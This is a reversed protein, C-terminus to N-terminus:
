VHKQRYWIHLVILVLDSHEGAGAWCHLIVQRSPPSVTYGVHPDIFHCMTISDSTGRCGAGLSLYVWSTVSHKGEARWWSVCRKCGHCWQCKFPLSITLDSWCVCVFWRVQLIKHDQPTVKVKNTRWLSTTQNFVYHQNLRTSLTNASSLLGLDYRVDTKLNTTIVPHSQVSWALRPRSMSDEWKVTIQIDPM